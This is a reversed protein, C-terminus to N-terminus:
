EKGVSRQGRRPRILVRRAGPVRGGIRLWKWRGIADVALLGPMWGAVACGAAAEEGLPETGEAGLALPWAALASMLVVPLKRKCILVKLYQLM